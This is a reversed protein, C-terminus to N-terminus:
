NRRSPFFQRLAFYLGLLGVVGAVLKSILDDALLQKLSSAEPKEPESYPRVIVTRDATATAYVFMEPNREGMVIRLFGLPANGGDKGDQPSAITVKDGLGLERTEIDLQANAYKAISRWRVARLTLRGSTLLPQRGSSADNGVRLNGRFELTLGNGISKETLRLVAPLSIGRRTGDPLALVATRSGDKSCQQGTAATSGKLELEIVVDSGDLSVRARVTNRQKNDNEISTLEIEIDEEAKRPKNSLRKKSAGVLVTSAAIQKCDQLVAGDLSWAIPQGPLFEIEVSDTKAEIRVHQTTAILLALAFALAAVGLFSVIVIDVYHSSWAKSARANLWRWVRTLSAKM